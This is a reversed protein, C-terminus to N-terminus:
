LDEGFEKRFQERVEEKNKKTLYSDKDLSKLISKAEKKDIGKQSGKEHLAQDAYARVRDRKSKNMDDVLPSMIKKQFGSEYMKGVM